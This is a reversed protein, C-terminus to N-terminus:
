SLVDVSQAMELGGEYMSCVMEQVRRIEMIM